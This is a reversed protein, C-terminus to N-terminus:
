PCICVCKCACVRAHVCVCVARVRVLSAHQRTHVNHLHGGGGADTIVLSHPPYLLPINDGPSDLPQLQAACCCRQKHARTQTRARSDGAILEGEAM